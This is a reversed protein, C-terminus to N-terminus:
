CYGKSNLQAIIDPRSRLKLPSVGFWRNFERCMHAQDAYGADQATQAPDDLLVTRAAKRARAISLWAAPRRRTKACIRQLKRPSVGLVTAAASVTPSSALNELAEHVDSSLESFENIIDTIDGQTDLPNVANLLSAIDVLVGPRLRYGKLYDQVNIDVSYATDDLSTVQWHPKKGTAAWFLLDRCGDPIVVSVGNDQASFEWEELVNGLM